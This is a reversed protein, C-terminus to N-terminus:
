ILPSSAVLRRRPNGARLSSKWFASAATRWSAFAPTGIRAPVSAGFGPV